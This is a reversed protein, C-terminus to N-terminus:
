LIRALRCRLTQRKYVDLHTYSVAWLDGDGEIWDELVEYVYDGWSFTSRTFEQIVPIDERVARRVTIDNM